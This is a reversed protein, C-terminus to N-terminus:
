VFVARFIDKTGAPGSIRLIFTTSRDILDFSAFPCCRRELALWDEVDRRIHRNELFTLTLGDATDTLTPRSALMRRTREDQAARETESLATM